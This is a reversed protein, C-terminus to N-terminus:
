YNRLMHTRHALYPDQPLLARAEELILRARHYDQWRYYYNSVALYATLTWSASRPTNGYRKLLQKFEEFYYHGEKLQDNNFSLRIREARYFLDLDQFYPHERLFPYQRFVRNLRPLGTIFNRDQRITWAVMSALTEQVQRDQPRYTYLSDVYPRVESPGTRNSRQRAKYDYYITSLRREFDVDLKTKYRLYDYLQDFERVDAHGAFTREAVDRFRRLVERDFMEHARVKRLELLYELANRSGIDASTALQFLTAQRLVDMVPRPAVRQADDLRDLAEQYNSEQYAAMAQQYHLFGALESLSLSRAEGLYYQQFTQRESQAKAEEDLLDMADLLRVYDRMFARELPTVQVQQIPPHMSVAHKNPDAILHLNWLNAEIRYPIQFYELLLAYLATTTTANFAGRKFLDRFNAYEQPVRLWSAEVQQRIHQVAKKTSRRDVRHERILEDILYQLEASIFGRAAQEDTTNGPVFLQLQEELVTNTRGQAAGFVFLLGIFLLFFKSSPHQM